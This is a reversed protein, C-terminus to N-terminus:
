EFKIRQALLRGTAAVCLGKVEVRGTYSALADASAPPDFRTNGDYVVTFSHMGSETTLVFTQAVPDVGSVGGHLEFDESDVDEDTKIEIKDAQLVGQSIRGEVEVRVGLAVGVAPSVKSADVPIGNVSFQANTVFDTVIGELKAERVDALVRLGVDLQTVTWPGQADPRVRVRVFQDSQPRVGAIESYDFLQDGIRFTRADVNRAIGRAKYTDPPTTPLEIRTAVFGPLASDFFGNVKVVQGAALAALGGELGSGFVTAATVRVPQGLVRVMRMMPSVDTVPGVIASGIRITRATARGTTADIPGGEVEVVLGLRLASRDPTSNPNDEDEFTASSDDFRVGGVIVSGFGSIPGSVFSGTGGEGVGGGGGCAVLVAVMSGLAALWPRMLWRSLLQKM